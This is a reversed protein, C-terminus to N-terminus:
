SALSGLVTVHVIRRRLPNLHSFYTCLFGDKSELDAIHREGIFVVIRENITPDRSALWYCMAAGLVNSRQVKSMLLGFNVSNLNDLESHEVKSLFEPNVGDYPPILQTLDAERLVASASDSANYPLGREMVALTFFPDGGPIQSASEIIKEARLIDAENKHTEGVFMINIVGPARMTCGNLWDASYMAGASSAAPKCLWLPPKPVDNYLPHKAVVRNIASGFDQNYKGKKLWGDSNVSLDLAPFTHSFVAEAMKFPYQEFTVPSLENNIATNPLLLTRNASPQALASQM